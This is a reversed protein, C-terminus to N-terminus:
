TRILEAHGKIQGLLLCFSAPVNSLRPVPLGRTGQRRAGVSEEDRLDVSEVREEKVVVGVLAKGLHRQRRQDVLALDDLADRSEIAEGCVLNPM